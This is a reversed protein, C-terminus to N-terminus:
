VELSLYYCEDLINLIEIVYNWYICVYIINM